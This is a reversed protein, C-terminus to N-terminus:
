HLRTDDTMRRNRPKNAKWESIQREKVAQEARERCLYPGQAQQRCGNIDCCLFYWGADGFLPSMQYISINSPTM